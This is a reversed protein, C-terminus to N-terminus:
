HHYEEPTYDLMGNKKHDSGYFGWCSEIVEEPKGCCPCTSWIEFGWVDGEIFQNYTELEHKLIIMAEYIHGKTVRKIGYWERIKDRTTYIWGLFGSDWQDKFPETGLAIGSHDYMYVARAIINKDKLMEKFEAPTIDHKDGLTYRRHWFVMTGLNDDERPSYQTSDHKIKIIVGPSEKTTIM